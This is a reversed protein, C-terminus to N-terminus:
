KTRRDIDARRDPPPTIPAVRPSATFRRNKYALVESELFEGKNPVPFEPDFFKSGRARLMVMRGLSIELVTATEQMSLRLPTRPLANGVLPPITSKDASM